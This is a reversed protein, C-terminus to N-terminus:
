LIDLLENLHAIVAKVRYWQPLAEGRRNFWICDMGAANAGAVDSGLSDGVM